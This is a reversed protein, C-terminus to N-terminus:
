ILKCVKSSLGKKWSISGSKWAPITITETRSIRMTVTTNSNNYYFAKGYKYKRSLTTTTSFSNGTTISFNNYKHVVTTEKAFAMPASLISVVLAVSM